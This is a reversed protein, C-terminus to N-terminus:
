ASPRSSGAAAKAIMRRFQDPATAVAKEHDLLFFTPTGRVGLSLGLTQDTTIRETTRADGVAQDFAAMDLKLEEAFPRFTEAGAGDARAWRPQTQYMMVLMENFKNQQAAAEVAVAAADSVSDGPQPFYRILFTVRDGFEARLAEVFPQAKRCDESAVNLFQVLVAREDQAPFAIRAGNRLIRADADPSRVPGQGDPHRGSTQVSRRTLMGRYGVLFATGGIVAVIILPIATFILANDPMFFLGNRLPKCPM